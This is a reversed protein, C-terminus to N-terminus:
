KSLSGAGLCRRVAASIRDESDISFPGTYLLRRNNDVVEYGGEPLQRRVPVYGVMDNAYGLTWVDTFQGGLERRYRLAYEVSMEGALAILALDTGCRLTQVEFDFTHPAPTGAARLDLHHQAWASVYGEPAQLHTRLEEDAPVDTTLKVMEQDMMVPGNVDRLEAAALVRTVAQGLAEGRIQVEDIELPRYGDGDADRADVKQDGACGQFFSASVGPYERELQQCAFSPYDGGIRSIAGTSTPHCAYSFLVHRLQGAASEVALLSVQHDPPADLSPKFQVGGEGDPRRRSASIGCWGTGARLRAPQRDQLATAAAAAVADLTRDIYQEDLIGHRRADMERRLVPGCHTHTGTLLIREAPVGTRAVIRQRAEQTRDYFGLWEITILLLPAGEEEDIAVCVARLRQYIGDSPTERAAYGALFIGVPPTIDITSLGVRYPIRSM